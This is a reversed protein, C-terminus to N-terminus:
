CCTSSKCPKPPIAARCAPSEQNRPAALIDDPEGAGHGADDLLTLKSGRWMQNLRWAVDPPGSIDLPM